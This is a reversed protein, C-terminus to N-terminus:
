FKIEPPSHTFSFKVDFDFLISQVIGERNEELGKETLQIKVEGADKRIASSALLVKSPPLKMKELLHIGEM